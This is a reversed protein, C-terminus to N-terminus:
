RSVSSTSMELSLAEVLHRDIESGGDAEIALAALEALRRLQGVRGQSIEQAADIGDPTFRATCGRELLDRTLLQMAERRALDKLEVRLWVHENLFATWAPSLDSGGAFIWSCRSGFADMMRNVPRIVADDARDVHDLLFALRRQTMATAEAYEQLWLWCELDRTGSLLGSGLRTSIRWPVEEASVATLNVQAVSVGERRLQTALEALCRTKGTGHPGTLLGSHGTHALYKLREIAETRHECEAGATIHPIISGLTDMTVFRESIGVDLASCGISETDVQFEGEWSGSQRWLRIPGM